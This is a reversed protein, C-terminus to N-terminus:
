CVIPTFPRLAADARVAPAPFLKPHLISALLELSDVIRPGSRNFLANGDAVYVRGTKAATIDAWHELAPLSSAERETRDVDFGCAAIVMVEPDFRRVDNWDTYRSREGSKTLPCRGGATHIVDPMWNAAIMLPEIWEIFITRPRLSDSLHSTRERVTGIRRALSQFLREGREPTGIAAAVRRVDDLIDALTAPNLAVIRAAALAPVARTCRVVEDYNIACVDCHAQTVIVDPALRALESTHLTYLARGSRAADRVSADIRNSGAAIDITPATLRPRDLIEAPYDCEHSIGVLNRSLGLGCVIETGSALLSAIRTATM